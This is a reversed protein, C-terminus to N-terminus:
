INRQSNSPHIDNKFRLYVIPKIMTCILFFSLVIFGAIAQKNDLIILSHPIGATFSSVSIIYNYLFILPREWLPLPLLGAGLCLLVLFPALPLILINPLLFLINFEGFYYISLPLVALGAALSVTILSGFFRGLFRIFFDEWFIPLFIIGLVATFSLLFSPNIERGFLMLVLSILFVRLLSLNWRWFYSFAWVLHFIFARQLPIGAGGIMLYAFSFPLSYLLILRRSVKLFKFLAAILCSALALHMGSLAFLHSLGASKTNERFRPSLFNKNGLALALVLSSSEPSYVNRIKQEINLRFLSFNKYFTPAESIVIIDEANVYFSTSSPYYKGYAYIHSGFSLSARGSVVLSIEEAKVQVGSTTLEPLSSLYLQKEETIQSFVPCCISLLFCLKKM